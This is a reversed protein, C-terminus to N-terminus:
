VSNATDAQLMVSKLKNNHRLRVSYNYTHGQKNVVTTLWVVTFISNLVFSLFLNKHLTIRQCSLSRFVVHVSNAYADCVLLFTDKNETRNQNTLDM